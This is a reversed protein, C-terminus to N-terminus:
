DHGPSKGPPLLKEPGLPEGLAPYNAQEERSRGTWISQNTFDQLAEAARARRAAPTEGERTEFVDATGDRTPCRDGEIRPGRTTDRRPHPRSLSRGSSTGSTRRSM